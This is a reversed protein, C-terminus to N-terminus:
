RRLRNKLGIKDPISAPLPARPRCRPIQRSHSKLLLRSHLGTWERSTPAIRYSKFPHDFRLSHDASFIMGHAEREYRVSYLHSIRREPVRHPGIRDVTALSLPLGGRAEITQDGVSQHIATAEQHQQGSVPVAYHDIGM